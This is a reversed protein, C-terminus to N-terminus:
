GPTQIKPMLEPILPFKVLALEPRGAERHEPSELSTLTSPQLKATGMIQIQPKHFSM